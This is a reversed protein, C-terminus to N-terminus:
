RRAQLAAEIIGSLWELDGDSLSALRSTLNTLAARQLRGAPLDPTFLEAPDVGLANALKAVVGFRAGSNARPELRLALGFKIPKKYM